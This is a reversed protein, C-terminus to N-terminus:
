GRQRLSESLDFRGVVLPGLSFARVGATHSRGVMFQRPNFGVLMTRYPTVNYYAAVNLGNNAVTLNGIRKLM